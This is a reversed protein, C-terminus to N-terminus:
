RGNSEFLFPVGKYYEVLRSKLEYKLKANMEEAMAQVLRNSSTHLELASILGEEYKRQNIKHALKVAESQKNAYYYEDAQGSKDAVAQEIESYLTRLAETEENQAIIVQAKSRNVTSTRSLGSFIPISLSVGIYHGRKDKLQDKFSVYSRGDLYKSFNTSYGAEAALSPLRAGRAAKLNLEQSRLALNAAVAKPNIEKANKFIESASEVFIAVMSQSYDHMIALEEDLPYNMKEKLRILSITYINRQRTLSYNDSAAKAEMEAVDSVGKVGLEEMRKIQRLNASSEELQEEALKVIEASYLVTFFLEMTEYAVMDKVSQLQEKGMLKNTKQIKARHIGALGDFLTIASYLGYSNSFSNITTYTNTEDDVRRGFNFYASTNAGLSPLLRGIAEMYNQHYIENQADQKNVKPSNEVAYAMCEELTWIKNEQAYSNTWIFLLLTFITYIRNM